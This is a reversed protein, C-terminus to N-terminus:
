QDLNHCCSWQWCGWFTFGSPEISSPVAWCIPRGKPHSCNHDKTNNWTLAVDHWRVDKLDAQFDVGFYVPIHQLTHHDGPAILHSTASGPHPLLVRRRGVLGFLAQSPKLLLAVVKYGERVPGGGGRVQVWQVVENPWVDLVEGVHSGVVGFGAQGSGDASNRSASTSFAHEWNQQLTTKKLVVIKNNWGTSLVRDSAVVRPCLSGPLSPLSSTSWMGWLELM